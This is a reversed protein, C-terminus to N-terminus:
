KQLEIDTPIVAYIGELYKCSTAGLQEALEKLFTNKINKALEEGNTISCHQNKYYSNNLIKESETEVEFHWLKLQVTQGCIETEIDKDIVKKWSGNNNIFTGQDKAKIVKVFKM